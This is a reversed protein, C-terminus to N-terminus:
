FAGKSTSGASSRLAVKVVVSGDMLLYLGILLPVLASVLGLSLIGPVGRNGAIAALFNLGAMLGHATYYVGALKIAVWLLDERNM